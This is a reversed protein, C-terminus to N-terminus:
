RDIILASAMLMKQDLYVGFLFKKMLGAYHDVAPKVRM